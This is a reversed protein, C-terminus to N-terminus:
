NGKPLSGLQETCSMFIALAAKLVFGLPSQLKMDYM